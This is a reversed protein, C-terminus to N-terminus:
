GASKKLIMEACAAEIPDEQNFKRAASFRVISHSSSANAGSEHMLSDSGSFQSDLLLELCDDALDSAMTKVGSPETGTVDVFSDGPVPDSM